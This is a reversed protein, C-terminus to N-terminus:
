PAEKSKKRNKRLYIRFIIVSGGWKALVNSLMKWLKETLSYESVIPSLFHADAAGLFDLIVFIADAQRRGATRSYTACPWSTQDLGAGAGADASSSPANDTAAPALIALVALSTNAFDSMITLTFSGCGPSHTCSRSPWIEVGVQVQSRIRFLGLAQEGGADGGNGIFGHGVIAAAQRQQRRHRFDGATQGNLSTGVASCFALPPRPM